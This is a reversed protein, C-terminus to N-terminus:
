AVARVREIGEFQAYRNFIAPKLQIHHVNIPHSPYKNSAVIISQIPSNKLQYYAHFAGM